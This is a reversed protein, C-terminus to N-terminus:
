EHVLFRCKAASNEVIESQNWSIKALIAEFHVACISGALEAGLVL